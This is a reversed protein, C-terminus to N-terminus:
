QIPPADGSKLLSILDPSISCEPIPKPHITDLARSPNFVNYTLRSIEAIAPGSVEFGLHKEAHLMVVLVYDGGPTSVVGADSHTDESWGHKHAVPIGDPVGAEIMISIKDARMVNVMQRCAAMSLAEPYASMLPGGSGVACQYIGSLLWGIDAPITQNLPDPQASQQDIGAQVPGGRASPVPTPPVDAFPRALITHLLGLSRITEMVYDIGKSLDGDGLFRLSANSAENQSCVMMVAITKAQTESPPTGALKRYVSVMVPIKMLSSASFAVNPNIAFMHGTRLNMVFVAGQRETGPEFHQSLLYAYLDNSLTELVENPGAVPTITWAPVSTVVMAPTSTLTPYGFARDGTVSVGNLDGSISVTQQSVWGRGAPGGPYAIEVWLFRAHRRLVTYGQGKLIRGVRPFDSGPGYRVITSSIAEATVGTPGPLTPTLYPTATDAEVVPTDTAQPLNPTDSPVIITVITDDYPVGNVDGTVTVLDAYVWGLTRPLAILYWRARASRGVMRYKTGASIAAIQAYDLGPGARVNATKIAEVWVPQATPTDQSRVSEPWALGAVLVVFIMIVLLLFRKLHPSPPTDM